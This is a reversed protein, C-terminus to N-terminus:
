KGIRIAFPKKRTMKEFVIISDYYSISHTSKTFNSIKEDALYHWANLQDIMDKSKEIFSSNLKLGGQYMPWYCTHLDELMYIGNNNILPYLEQFSLWLDDQLHSGDDLVIDPQGHKKIVEQLFKKDNQSGIEIVIQDEEFQKCYKNIDIGVVKAYPGFYRKWLKLSGGKDVGIEIFLINKNVFQSFYREYIPFYHVWKHIIPGQNDQFLSWLSM